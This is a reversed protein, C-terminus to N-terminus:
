GGHAKSVLTSAGAGALAMVVWLAVMGEAAMNNLASFNVVALAPIASAILGGAFKKWSFKETDPAQYWARISNLGAGALAGSVAILAVAEAVM